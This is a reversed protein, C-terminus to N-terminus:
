YVGEIHNLVLGSLDDDIDIAIVDIRPILDTQSSNLIGQLAVRVRGIKRRDVAEAAAGYRRGRRLKVEVAVLTGGERAVIDIERRAYRVNNQLIEYGKVALFASAIREGLEGM